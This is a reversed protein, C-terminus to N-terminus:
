MLIMVWSWYDMIGMKKSGRVVSRYMVVRSRNMVFIVMRSWELNVLDVVMMMVAAIMLWNDVMFRVVFDMMLNSVQLWVLLQHWMRMMMFHEMVFRMVVEVMINRNLM